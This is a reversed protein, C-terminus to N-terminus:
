SETFDSEQIKTGTIPAITGIIYVSSVGTTCITAEATLTVQKLWMFVNGHCVKSNYKYVLELINIYVLTLASFTDTHTNDCEKAGRPSGRNPM